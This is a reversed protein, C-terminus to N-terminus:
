TRREGYSARLKLTQVSGRGFDEARGFHTAASPTGLNGVVWSIILIVFFVLLM